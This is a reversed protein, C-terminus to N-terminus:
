QVVLDLIQIKGNEEVTDVVLYLTQEYGRASVKCTLLYHNKNKMDSYITEVKGESTFDANTTANMGSKVFSDETMFEKLSQNREDISKYNLYNTGFSLLFAYEDENLGGESESNSTSESSHIQVDSGLQSSSPAQKSGKFELVSSSSEATEKKPESKSCGVLFLVSLCSLLMVKKM